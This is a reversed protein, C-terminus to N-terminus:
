GFYKNLSGNHNLLLFCRCREEPKAKNTQTTSRGNTYGFIKHINWCLPKMITIGNIPSFLGM